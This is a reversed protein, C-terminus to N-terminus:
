VGCRLRARQIDRVINKAANGDSASTSMPIAHGDPCRLKPHRGHELQFGARLAAKVAARADKPITLRQM